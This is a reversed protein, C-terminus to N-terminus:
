PRPAPRLTDGIGFPIEGGRLIHILRRAEGRDIKGAEVREELHEIAEDQRAELADLMEQLASSKARERELDAARHALEQRQRDRDAEFQRREEALKNAEDKLERQRKELAQRWKLQMQNLEGEKIAVQALRANAEALKQRAAAEADDLVSLRSRWTEELEKARLDLKRRAVAVDSTYREYNVDAKRNWGLPKGVVEHFRDQAQMWGVRYWTGDQDASDGRAAARARSVVGPDLYKIPFAQPDAIIAHAHALKEDRHLVLSVLGAEGLDGEEGPDDPGQTGPLRAARAPRFEGFEGILWTKILERWLSFQADGERYAATYGMVISLVTPLRTSQRRLKTYPGEVPVRTVAEPTSPELTMEMHHQGKGPKPPRWWTQPSVNQGAAQIHEHFWEKMREVDPGHVVIPELPEIDQSDLHQVYKRTPTPKPEMLDNLLRLAEGVIDELARTPQNASIAVLTGHMFQNLGGGTTEGMPRTPRVGGKKKARVKARQKAAATSM